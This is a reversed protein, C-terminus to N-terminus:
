SDYKRFSMDLIQSGSVMILRMGSLNIWETWDGAALEFGVSATPNTGDDRWRVAATNASEARVLAHTAGTPIVAGSLYSALTAAAGTVTIQQFNIISAIATSVQVYPNDISGIVGSRATRTSGSADKFTYNDAM